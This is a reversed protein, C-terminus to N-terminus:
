RPSRARGAGSLGAPEPGPAAGSALGPEAWPGWRASSDNTEATGGAGRAVNLRSTHPPGAQEAGPNLRQLVSSLNPTIKKM